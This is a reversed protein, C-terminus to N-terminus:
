WDIKKSIAPTMGGLKKFREQFIEFLDYQCDFIPDGSPAFRWQRAMEEQDMQNIRDIFAQRTAPDMTRKEM